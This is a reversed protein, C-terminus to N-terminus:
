CSCVHAQGGGGQERYGGGGGWVEDWEPSLNNSIVRTKTKLDNTTFV